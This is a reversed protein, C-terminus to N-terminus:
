EPRIIIQINKSIRPITKLPSPFKIKLAVDAHDFGPISNLYETAVSTTKGLITSKIKEVDIDPLFNGGVVVDYIYKGDEENVFNFKFDIQESSLTHGTPSKSSLMNKAYDLLKTRDAALGTVGLELTLKLSDAQDGEGHDFDESTPEIAVLDDIFVESDSIKGSLGTKVNQSLENILDGELSAIDDKSVASIQQSSGGSFDGTSTAAVLAKSYNGVSFVEGKALNYASGIDNATVNITATGPSGPLLQGSISAEKDTVFKFGSTSTLVTGASLNIATGNGNAIQVTGAAKNGILKTGTTPRTKEGSVTDILLRAPIVGNEQDFQGNRDFTIQVNEETRKPTVFITIQAAQVFWWMIIVVVLLFGLIALIATLGKNKNSSDTSKRSFMKSFSNFLNKSKALYGAAVNMPTLRSAGVMQTKVPEQPLDPVNQVPSINQVDERKMSSVDGGVSFGLAEATPPKQIEPSEKEIEDFNEEEEGETSKVVATVNGIEAGGALATALVKKETSLVEVQPTHLFNIKGESWNTQILTQKVEELEGEKGDYVIFRTPLPAIGHFRSLGEIVDDSLSVSRSVETTGVLEGLKFVSLELNENGSKLVMGNLPAGEESKYLHAIAEPLVVFGVPTLSLETCLKKIKGLNEPSIEGDKVWSTSVGFVTKQPEPYSEPLKQIASSLAADTAEILEDENEWPIGAGVGLVEATSDGIYWIGSQVLGKEIVLAWFLEPPSEKSTLLDKINM